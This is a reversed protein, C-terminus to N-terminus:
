DYLQVPIGAAEAKAIMDKTGKSSEIDYHFAMVLDPRTEKQMWTNRIPGAGRGYVRWKAPVGFYPIERRKAWDEAIIDAGGKTCAGHILVAIGIDDHVKDLERYIKVENDYDRAGCVLVGVGDDDETVLRRRKGM